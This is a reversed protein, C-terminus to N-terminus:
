YITRKKGVFKVTPKQYDEDMSIKFMIKGFLTQILLFIWTQYDLQKKSM